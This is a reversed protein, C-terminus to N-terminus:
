IKLKKIETYTKNIPVQEAIHNYKMLGEIYTLAENALELTNEINKDLLVHRNKPDFFLEECLKLRDIFWIVSDDLYPEYNNQLTCRMIRETKNTVNSYEYQNEEFIIKSYGKIISLNIMKQFLKMFNSNINDSLDYKQHFYGYNLNITEKYVIEKSKSLIPIEIIEFEPNLSKLIKILDNDIKSGKHKKYINEIEAYIENENFLSYMKAQLLANKESFEMQTVKKIFVYPKQSKLKNKNKNAVNHWLQAYEIYIFYSNNLYYNLGELLNENKYKWLFQIKNKREKKDEKHIRYVSNNNWNNDYGNSVYDLLSWFSNSFIEIKGDLIECLEKSLKDYTTWNDYEVPLNNINNLICKNQDIKINDNKIIGSLYNKFVVNHLSYEESNNLGQITLIEMIEDKNLFKGM